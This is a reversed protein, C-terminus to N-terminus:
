LNKKINWIWNILILIILPIYFKPKQLTTEIKNYTKFLTNSKFILDLLIWIPTIILISSMILSLPNIHISQVFNGHFLALTARTTGCSPCPLNTINKFYCVTFSTTKNTNNHNILLWSIALLCATFLFVYLKNRKKLM